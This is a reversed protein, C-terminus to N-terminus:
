QDMQRRRKERELGAKFDFGLSKRRWPSWYSGAGKFIHGATQIEPFFDNPFNETRLEKALGRCHATEFFRDM